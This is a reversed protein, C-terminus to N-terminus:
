AEKSISAASPANGGRKARGIQVATANAMTARTKITGKRTKTEAVAITQALARVTSEYVEGIRRAEDPTVRKLCKNTQENRGGKVYPPLSPIVIRAYVHGSAAGGVGRSVVKASETLARTAGSWVNPLTADQAITRGDSDVKGAMRKKKSATKGLITYGLAFRAYNTFRLPLYEKAFWELTKAAALELLDTAMRAGGAELNDVSFPPCRLVVGDDGEVNCYVNSLM